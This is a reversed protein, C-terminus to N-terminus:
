DSGGGGEGGGFSDQIANGVEVAVMKRSQEPFARTDYKEWKYQARLFAWIGVAGLVPVCWVIAAQALKQLPTYFHCRVLAISVAINAVGAMAILGIVIERSGLM